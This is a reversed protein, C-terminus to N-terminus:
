ILGKPNSSTLFGEFVIEGTSGFGISLVWVPQRSSSGVKFDFNLTSVLGKPDASRLRTRRNQRPFLSEGTTWESM